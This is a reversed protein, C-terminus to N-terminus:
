GSAYSTLLHVVDQNLHFKYLRSCGQLSGKKGGGLVTGPWESTEEVSLTHEALESMFNAFSADWGRFNQVVLGGIAGKACAARVLATYAEARPEFIITWNPM